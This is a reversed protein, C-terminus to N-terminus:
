LKVMLLKLKMVMVGWERVQNLGSMIVLLWNKMFQSQTGMIIMELKAVLPIKANDSIACGAGIQSLNRM